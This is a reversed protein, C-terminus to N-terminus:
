FGTKRKKKKVVARSGFAGASPQTMSLGGDAQSSSAVTVQSAAFRYTPQTEVVPPPQSSRVERMTELRPSAIGKQRKLFKETRRRRKEERQRAAEEDSDEEEGAAGSVQEPRWVYTAPDTGPTEPWQALISACTSGLPKLSKISLTYGRLRAVAPDEAPEGSLASESPAPTAYSSSPEFGYDNLPQSSFRSHSPTRPSPPPRGGHIPLTLSPLDELNELPATAPLPVSKDRISVLISSLCLDAAVNRVVKEKAIRAMGPTNQPLSTIWLNVLRDYVNSLNPLSDGSSEPEIGLMRLLGSSHLTVAMSSEAYNDEFTNIFDHLLAAGDDVDETFKEFGALDHFTFLGELGVQRRHQIGGVINQIYDAMGIEVDPYDDQSPPLVVKGKTALEYWRRADIVKPAPEQDPEDEISPRVVPANRESGSEYDEFGDPVVFDDITRSSLFHAEAAADQSESPPPIQEYRAPKGLLPAAVMRCEALLTRSVELNQGLAFVQLFHGHDLYGRGHRRDSRQLTTPLVCLGHLQSLTDDDAGRELSFADISWTVPTAADPTTTFKYVNVLFMGSSVLFATCVDGEEHLELKLLNGQAERYHLCSMIIRAGATRDTDNQWEGATNIQLLFLRTNTLVFVKDHQLPSRKVELIRGFSGNPVLDPSRLRIPHARLDFVALHRENCVVITSVNGAWLIRGWGSSTVDRSLDSEARDDLIYGSKGPTATKSGARKRGEVDWASWYGEEDLVAFQRPYWPNFSVDAHNRGNTKASTITVAPNPDLLSPRYKDQFGPPVRAPGPTRQYIPQLITTSALKRVALWSRGGEIGSSFVIQEISGAGDLWYGDESISPNLMRLKVSDDGDWTHDELRPKILRLVHGADGHAVALVNISRDGHHKSLVKATGSAILDGGTPRAQAAEVTATRVLPGLVAAAAGIQPVERILSRKQDRNRNSTRATANGQEKPTSQASPPICPQLPQVPRIISPLVPIRSFTWKKEITDYTAEGLHGYTHDTARRDTM